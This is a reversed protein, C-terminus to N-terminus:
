GLFIVNTTLKGKMLKSSELTSNPATGPLKNDYEIKSIYLDQTFHIKTWLNLIAPFQM